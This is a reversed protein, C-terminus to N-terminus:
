GHMPGSQGGSNMDLHGFLPSIRPDQTSAEATTFHYDMVRDLDKHAIGGGRDSIRAPHGCHPSSENGGVSPRDEHGTDMRVPVQHKSSTGERAWGGM